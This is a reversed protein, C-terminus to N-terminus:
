AIPEQQLSPECQAVTGYEEYWAQFMLVTWLKYAHRGRGALHDQWCTRIAQADLLGQRRIMDPNLLDEAWPRLPGRLWEGVPVSFGQKPREILERPVHRELWKRLLWKGKGGRLRMAYPLSWAYAYLRPDLLPARVELSVAMSARDVKTLIDNPLYSLGDRFMMQEAFNLGQPQRGPDTLPIRSFVADLVPTQADPWKAVLHDYIEAADALPLLEALKYLREGFQPHQPVLRNWREISVRQIARSMAARVRRPLWGIRQWLAPVVYHRQYGGFIEDGGDGSLAVTVQQRAFQSVMFTPIQSVDAFPEDYITPLRPIIDLAEKPSMYHEHHETGLHAAIERAHVAEDFGTERFGISFTKVPRESQSQMATVVASSDIGGSLFAGLPVDSIMREATCQRLLGDLRGIAADDSVPEQQARAEQVVEMMDWYPEMLASIDAGPAIRGGSLDLTVRCGPLLQWTNEYISFPAPMDGYRSYLALARRSITGQFSPHARLAKLESAFVLDRGAWGVYLPKKGMRDRVLHLVKAQRDWLAFAFMGNLKELARDLGWREFAALMVETDSHGRFRVAGAELEAMLSPFNYIEGNYSIVYRGSHSAQPQHGEASLDIISLRRHALCLPREAEQWVGEDDPGRHALRNAMAMAVRRQVLRDTAPAASFIGAIGCM